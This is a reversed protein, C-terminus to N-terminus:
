RAHRNGFAEVAGQEVRAETVVRVSQGRGRGLRLASSYVREVGLRFLGEVAGVVDVMADAAGVEHFHVKEVTSGHVEAEAEALRRFVAKARERVLPEIAGADLIANVHHLHRHPQREEVVRVEARAAVFPGRRATGLQVTVGDLKLRVPLSELEAAPWGASVLAGLCMDGSVGSFCDFYAIRM